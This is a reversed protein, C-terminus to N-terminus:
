DQLTEVESLPIRQKGKVPHLVKVVQAGLELLQAFRWGNDYYRVMRGIDEKTVPKHTM